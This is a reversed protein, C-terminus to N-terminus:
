VNPNFYIGDQLHYFPLGNKSVGENKKKANIQELATERASAIAQCDAIPNNLGAALLLKGNGSIRNEFLVTENIM